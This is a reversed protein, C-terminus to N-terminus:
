ASEVNITITASDMVVSDAARRIELTFVVEQVQGAGTTARTWTRDTGLNLWSGATGSSFTGSIITARAEYDAMNVQPNIWAGAQTVSGAITRYIFGDSDLRYTGTVTHVGSAIVTVNGISIEDGMGSAWRMLRVSM